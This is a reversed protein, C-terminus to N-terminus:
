RILEEYISYPMNTFIEVRESGNPCVYAKEFIVDYEPYHEELIAELFMFELNATLIGCIFSTNGDENYISDGIRSLWEKKTKM